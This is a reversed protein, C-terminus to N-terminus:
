NYLIKRLQEAVKESHEFVEDSFTWGFGDNEYRPFIHLHYHGTDNFIGGNQMISYGDPQYTKKIAIVLRKSVEMLHRLVEAPIEDIDFYHEKPILLIHGQNIPDSDLFAMVMEDEYVINTELKKNAIDCFICM